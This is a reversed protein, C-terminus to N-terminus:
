HTLLFNIFPMDLNIINNPSVNLCDKFYKTMHPQDYYGFNYTLDVWTTNPNAQLYNMASKFRIIQAYVKPSIGIKTKFHRELTRKNINLVTEISTISINGNAKQIM